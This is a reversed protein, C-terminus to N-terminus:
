SPGRGCIQAHGSIAVRVVAVEGPDTGFATHPASAEDVEDLRLSRQEDVTGTAVRLDDLSRCTDNALVTTNDDSGTHDAVQVGPAGEFEADRPELGEDSKIEDLVVFRVTRVAPAALRDDDVHTESLGEGIGM